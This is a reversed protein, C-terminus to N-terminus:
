KSPMVCNARKAREEARRALREYDNAIRMMTNRTATDSMADALTRAEEARARWHDPNDILRQADTSNTM